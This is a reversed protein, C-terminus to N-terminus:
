RKNPIATNLLRQPCPRMGMSLNPEPTEVLLHYHNDMLCYAHCGGGQRSIASSLVSFFCERDYDDIVIPQRANGRGIVHYVAGAFQLRIPRAM